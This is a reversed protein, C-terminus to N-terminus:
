LTQAMLRRAQILWQLKGNVKIVPWPLELVCGLLDGANQVYDEKGGGHLLLGMEGCSDLDIFGAQVPSEEKNVWLCSSGFIVHYSLESGTWQLWRPTKTPLMGRRRALVELGVSFLPGPVPPLPKALPDNPVITKTFLTMEIEVGTEQVLSYQNSPFGCWRNAALEPCICGAPYCEELHELYGCPIVM